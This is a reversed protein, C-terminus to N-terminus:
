VLTESKEYNIIINAFIDLKTKNKKILKKYKEMQNVANLISTTQYNLKSRNKNIKLKPYIKQLKDYSVTYRTKCNACVVKKCIHNPKFQYNCNYCKYMENPKFSNEIGNLYKKSLPRTITKSIINNCKTNCCNTLWCTKKICNAKKCKSCRIMENEYLIYRTIHNNGSVMVTCGYKVDKLNSM